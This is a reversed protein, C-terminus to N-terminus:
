GPLGSVRESPIIVVVFSLMLAPYSRRGLTRHVKM